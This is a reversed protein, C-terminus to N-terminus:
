IQLHQHSKNQTNTQKTQSTTKKSHPTILKGEELDKFVTVKLNKTRKIKFFRMCKIKARM